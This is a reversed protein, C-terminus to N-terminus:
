WSRGWLYVGYTRDAAYVERTFEEAPRPHVPWPSRWTAAVDYPRGCLPCASSRETALSAWAIDGYGDSPEGDVDSGQVVFESASPQTAYEIIESHESFTVQRADSCQQMRTQKRKRTKKHGKTEKSALKALASRLTSCSSLAKYVSMAALWVSAIPPCTIRSQLLCGHCQPFYTALMNSRVHTRLSYWSLMVCQSM